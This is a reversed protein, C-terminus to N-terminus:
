EKGATPFKPNWKQLMSPLQGTIGTVGLFILIGLLTIASGSLEWAPPGHFLLHYAFMLSLCGLAACVFYFFADALCLLTVVNKRTKWRTLNHTGQLWQFRYGRFAQYACILLGFVAFYVDM